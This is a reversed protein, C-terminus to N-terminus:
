FYALGILTNAELQVDASSSDLYPQAESIAANFRKDNLSNRSSALEKTNNIM